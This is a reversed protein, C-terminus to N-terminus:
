CTLTAPISHGHCVLDGRKRINQWIQNGNDIKEKETKGPM